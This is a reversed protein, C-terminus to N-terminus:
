KSAFNVSVESYFIVYKDFAQLDKWICGYMGVYSKGFSEITLTQIHKGYSEITVNTVPKGQFTWYAKEASICLLTVKEGEYFKSHAPYITRRSM